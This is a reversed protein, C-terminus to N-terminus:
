HALKTLSHPSHHLLGDAREVGVEDRVGVLTQRATLTQGATGLEVTPEVVRRPREVSARDPFPSVPDGGGLPLGAEATRWSLGSFEHGACSLKSTSTPHPSTISSGTSSIRRRRGATPLTEVRNTSSTM